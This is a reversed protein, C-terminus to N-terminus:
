EGDSIGGKGPYGKAILGHTSQLKVSTHAPIDLRVHTTHDVVGPVDDYYPKGPTVTIHKDIPREDRVESLCSNIAENMHTEMTFLEHANQFDVYHRFVTENQERGLLYRIEGRELGFKAWLHACSEALDKPDFTLDIQRKGKKDKTVITRTEEGFLTKLKEDLEKPTLQRKNKGRFLTGQPHQDLSGQAPPTIIDMILAPIPVCRIKIETDPVDSTRIYRGKQRVVLSRIEAYKYAYKEYGPITKFDKVELACIESSSLGLFIAMLAAKNIGPAEKAKEPNPILQKYLDHYENRTLVKKVLNRSIGTIPSRRIRFVRKYVEEVVDRNVPEKELFASITKWLCNSYEVMRNTVVNERGSGEAAEKEGKVVDKFYSNVNVGLSERIIEQHRRVYGGAGVALNIHECLQKFVATLYENYEPDSQDSHCLIRKLDFDGFCLIMHMMLEQNATQEEKTAWNTSIGKYNNLWFKALPMGEDATIPITGDFRYLTDFIVHEMMRCVPIKAPALENSDKYKKEIEKNEKFGNKYQYTHEKGIRKKLYYISMKIRNSQRKKAYKSKNFFAFYTYRISLNDTLRIEKPPNRKVPEM